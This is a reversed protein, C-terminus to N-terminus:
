CLPAAQHDQIADVQRRLVHLRSVAILLFILSLLPGYQFHTAGAIAKLPLIAAVAAVFLALQGTAVGRQRMDAWIWASAPVLLALDYCYLLPVALLTAACVVAIQLGLQAPQPRRQWWAWVVAACAALAALVQLNWAVGLEAGALRAMGLVSAMASWEYAGAQFGQSSLEATGILGYWPDMGFDFISFVIMGVVTITAIGFPKWHGGAVLALPLLLGLHPKFSALGICIGALVPRAYLQSLGLGILGASLFGTQGYMINYFAPPSAFAFLWATRDRLASAVAALYPIATVLLWATLSLLYPLWALPYLAIIFVPPYMWPAFGIRRAQREDLTGDYAAQAAAIEAQFMREPIYLNAAPENQLLLSAAYKPMFDTFVPVDGRRASQYGAALVSVVFALYGVFIAAGACFVAWRPFRKVLDM